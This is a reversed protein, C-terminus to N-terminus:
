IQRCNSTTSCIATTSSLRDQPRKTERLRTCMAHDHQEALLKFTVEEEYYASNLVTSANGPHDNVHIVCTM